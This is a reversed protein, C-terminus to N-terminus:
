VVAHCWRLFRLEPIPILYLPFTVQFNGTRRDYKVLNHKDLQVAATHIMDM